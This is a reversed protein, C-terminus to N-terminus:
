GGEQAEQQTEAPLFILRHKQQVWLVCPVPEDKEEDFLFPTLDWFLKNVKLLALARRHEGWGPCPTEPRPHVCLASSLLIPVAGTFPGCTDIRGTTM